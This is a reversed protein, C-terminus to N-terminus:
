LLCICAHTTMPWADLYDVYWVRSLSSHNSRWCSWSSLRRLRRTVQVLDLLKMLVIQEGSRFGAAFSLWWTWRSAGGIIPINQIQEILRLICWAISARKAIFWYGYLIFLLKLLSRWVNVEFSSFFIFLTLILVVFFRWRGTFLSIGVVTVFICAAIILWSEHCFNWFGLYHLLFLFSFLRFLYGHHGVVVVKSGRLLLHSEHTLHTRSSSIVEVFRYLFAVSNPRFSAKDHLIRWRSSDCCLEWVSLLRWYLLPWSTRFSLEFKINFLLSFIDLLHLLLISIVKFICPALILLRYWVDLFSKNFSFLLMLFLFLLDKFVLVSSKLLVLFLEGLEVFDVDFVSFHLVCLRKLVLPLEELVLLLVKALLEL